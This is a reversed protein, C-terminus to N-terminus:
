HEPSFEPHLPHTDGTENWDSPNYINDKMARYIGYRILPNRTFVYPLPGAGSHYFGGLDTLRIPVIGHYEKKELLVLNNEAFAKTFYASLPAPEATEAKVFIDGAHMDM